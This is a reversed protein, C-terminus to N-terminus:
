SFSDQKGNSGVPLSHRKNISVEREQLYPISRPSNHEQIKAKASQTPKMFRPLSNKGGRSERAEQDYDLSNIRRSKQEKGEQETTNSWSCHALQILLEVTSGM